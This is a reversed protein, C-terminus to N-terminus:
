SESRCDCADYRGGLGPSADLRAVAVAEIFDRVEMKHAATTTPVPNVIQVSDDGSREPWCNEFSAPMAVSERSLRKESCNRMARICHLLGAISPNISVM